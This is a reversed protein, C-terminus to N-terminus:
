LHAKEKSKAFPWLRALRQKMEFSIHPFTTLRLFSVDSYLNDVQDPLLNESKYVAKAPSWFNFSRKFSIGQVLRKDIVVFKVQHRDILAQRVALEQNAYIKYDSVYQIHCYNMRRRVVLSYLVYCHKTGDSIVLHGLRYPQHDAYIRADRECLKSKIAEADFEVTGATKKLKGFFPYPLLVKLQNDLQTYGLRKTLARIRDCPTFHTVTYGSLRQVPKLLMLSRGRHNEDVWWTHLNCFKHTQSNVIRKSFVMAIMGIVKDNDFLAYGTHDEDKEFSYDFVNRWDQEDSLPDDDRLFAEYLLPFIHSQIKEVHFM